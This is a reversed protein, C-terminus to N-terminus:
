AVGEAHLYEAKAKLLPVIVREYHEKSGANNRELIYIANSALAVPLNHKAIDLVTLQRELLRLHAQIDREAEDLQGKSTPGSFYSPKGSKLVLQPAQVRNSLLFRERTRIFLYNSLELPKEAYTLSVHYGDTYFNRWVYTTAQNYYPHVLRSGRPLPIIGRFFNWIANPTYTYKQLM